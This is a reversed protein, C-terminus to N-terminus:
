KVSIAITVDVERYMYMDYGFTRDLNQKFKFIGNSILIM